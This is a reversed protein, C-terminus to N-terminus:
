AFRWSDESEGNFGLKRKVKRWIPRGRERRNKVEREVRKLWKTLITHL